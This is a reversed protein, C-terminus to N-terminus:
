EGSASTRVAIQEVLIEDRYEIFVCIRKAGQDSLATQTSDAPLVYNVEVRHRWDDRDPMPTGDRYHPPSRNWGDYDDVDDFASRPGGVEGSDPGLSAAGSPESYEAQLIESMLEDALGIAVARNGISHSSRTAAGLSNLAAVAMVGVIMTSAVVEILSLGARPRLTPM